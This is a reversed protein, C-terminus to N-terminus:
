LCHNSKRHWHSVLWQGVKVAALTWRLINKEKQLFMLVLPGGAAFINRLASHRRLVPKQMQEGLAAIRARGVICQVVVEDRLLYCEDEVQVLAKMLAAAYRVVFLVVGALLLCMVVFVCKALLLMELHLVAWVVIVGFGVLLGSGLLRATLSGLMPVVKLLALTIVAGLVIAVFIRATILWSPECINIFLFSEM